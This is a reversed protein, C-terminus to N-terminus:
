AVHDLKPITIEGIRVRAWFDAAFVGFTEQIASISLKACERIGWPTLFASKNTESRIREIVTNKM